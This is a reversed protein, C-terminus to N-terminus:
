TLNFSSSKHCFVEGHKSVKLSYRLNWHQTSTWTRQQKWLSAYFTWRFHIRSHRSSWIYVLTRYKIIFSPVPLCIYCPTSPPLLCSHRYASQPNRIVETVRHCHVIVKELYRKLIQRHRLCLGHGTSPAISYLELCNAVRQRTFKGSFYVIGEM